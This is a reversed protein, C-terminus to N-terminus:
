MASPSIVSNLFRQAVGITWLAPSAVTAEAQVTYGVFSGATLVLATSAVPLTRKIRNMVKERFILASALSFPLVLQSFMPQVRPKVCVRLM